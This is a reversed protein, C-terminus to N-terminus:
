RPKPRYFMYNGTYKVRAEQGVSDGPTAPAKGGLTDVRQIYSISAFIGANTTSSAKLLLHPISDPNYSPSNTVLKGVVKSGDVGEWTPGAYHKGIVQRQADFLKAMPARFAWNTGSWVYIQVGEASVRCHFENGDPVSVDPYPHFHHEGDSSACGTLFLGIVASALLTILRRALRSNDSTNKMIFIVWDFNLM